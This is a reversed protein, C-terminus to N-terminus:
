MSPVPEPTQEPQELHMIDSLAELVGLTLNADAVSGHLSGDWQVTAGRGEYANSEPWSYYHVGVRTIVTESAEQAVPTRRGFWRRRPQDPGQEVMYAVFIRGFTMRVNEVEVRPIEVFPSIRAELGNGTLSAYTESGLEGLITRALKGARGAIERAEARQQDHWARDNELQEAARQGRVEKTQKDTV